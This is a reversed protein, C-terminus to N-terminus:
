GLIATRAAALAADLGAIEPGGGQALSKQGGGRGGVLPLVAKLTANLDLPATKDCAFVLQAKGDHVSGLLAVAGGEALRQALFRLADADHADRRQCIVARGDVKGAPQARLEEAEYGLLRRRLDSIERRQEDSQTLVRELQAFLDEPSAKLAAVAANVTATKMHYDALARAGCVFEIRTLNGKTESRRLGIAGVCGVSAVHTGGCGIRDWDGISVVRIDGERDSGKRMPLRAIESPPLVQAVVPTDQWAIENAAVEAEAFAADALGTRNIDITIVEGGLHWSLTDAGFLRYFAASIVHQGTHQQMHDFRRAWAVTGRVTDGVSAPLPAELIHYIVEDAEQVDRVAVGGLTGLDAPQGGGEPYLATADLVAAPQGQWATLAVVRAEFERLYADDFYLRKTLPTDPM